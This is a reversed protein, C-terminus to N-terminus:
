TLIQICYVVIILPSAGNELLRATNLQHDGVIWATALYAGNALMCFYAIVVDVFTSDTDCYWAACRSWTDPREM